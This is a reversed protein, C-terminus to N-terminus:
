KTHAPCTADGRVVGSEAWCDYCETTGEPDALRFAKWILFHDVPSDQGHYVGIEGDDLNVRRPDIGVDSLAKRMLDAQQELTRM